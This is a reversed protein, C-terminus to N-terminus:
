DKAVAAGSRVAAVVDLIAKSSAAAGSESTILAEHTADPIVRHASNTSLAALTDQAALWGRQAEAAATVVVLPRDGFSTFAMAARLTAPIEVFEDRGSAAMRPTAQDAREEGRAPEPLDAFASAYALRMVGLRAVSPLLALVTHTTGYFAGYDPLATFADDPQSDLLVMGAVDAGYRAAFIRVYAGGTSHGVLLYPGANGSAALLAHLDNAVAVGDQPVASAESFGRGARDYACVKTTGAVAPAVRGWYFSSEAAGSELVVTPSGSGTCSIHLRHGGVDVLQGSMPHAGRDAAALITELGGGVAMIALVGVVPYLLWRSRSHLARRIQVITWIVLGLLVPPWVWGLADMVGAGPALVLLGLGVLVMFAAPVVPWRQPQDTLRTTLLALVAWGLGFALLVSGTIVHEQAGSAPGIVLVVALVLGALVSGGIALPLRARRRRAAPDTVTVIDGTKQLWPERSRDWPM